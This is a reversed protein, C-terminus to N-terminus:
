ACEPRRDIKQGPNKVEAQPEGIAESIDDLKIAMGARICQLHSLFMTAVIIGIAIVYVAFPPLWDRIMVAIGALRCHHRMILPVHRPDGCGSMAALSGMVYARVLSPSPASSGKATTCGVLALMPCAVADQWEFLESRAGQRHRAPIRCEIASIGRQWNPKPRNAKEVKKWPRVPGGSCRGLAARGGALYPWLHEILLVLATMDGVWPAERALVLRRDRGSIAGAFVMEILAAIEPDSSLANGDEAPLHRKGVSHRCRRACCSAPFRDLCTLRWM